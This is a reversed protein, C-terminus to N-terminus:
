FFYRIYSIKLDQELVGIEIKLLAEFFPKLLHEPVKEVEESTLISQRQLIRQAAVSVKSMKNSDYEDRLSSIERRLAIPTHGGVAVGSDDYFGLANFRQTEIDSTNSGLNDIFDTELTENITAKERYRRLLSKMYDNLEAM